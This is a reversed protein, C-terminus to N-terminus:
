FINAAYPDGYFDEAVATVNGPYFFAGGMVLFEKVRQMVEIGM